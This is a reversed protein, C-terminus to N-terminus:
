DKMRAAEVADRFNGELLDRDSGTKPGWDLYEEIVRLLVPAAAILKANAERNSGVVIAVTDGGPVSIPIHRIPPYPKNDPDEAFERHEIAEQVTVGGVRPTNPGTLGDGYGHIWPENTHNM